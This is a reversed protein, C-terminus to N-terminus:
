SVDDSYGCMYPGLHGSFKAFLTVDGLTQRVWAAHDYCVWLHEDPHITPPVRVYGDADRPCQHDSDSGWACRRDAM